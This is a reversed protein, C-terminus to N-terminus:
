RKAPIKAYQGVAFTLVSLVMSIGIRVVAHGLTFTAGSNGFLIAGSVLAGALAGYVLAQWWRKAFCGAVIAVFFGGM